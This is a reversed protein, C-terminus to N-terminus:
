PTEAISLAPLSDACAVLLAAVGGQGVVVVDVELVVEVERDVVVDVDRVVVVVSAPVVVVVVVTGLWRGIAM